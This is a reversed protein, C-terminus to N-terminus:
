NYFQTPSANNIYTCAVAAFIFLCVIFFIYNEVTGFKCFLKQKSIPKFFISWCIPAVSKFWPMLVGCSCDTVFVQSNQKAWRGRPSITTLIIECCMCRILNMIVEQSLAKPHIGRFGVSSEVIPEPLSKTGDPLLGNDSGNNVRTWTAM